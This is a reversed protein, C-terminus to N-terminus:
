CNVSIAWNGVVFKIFFGRSYVQSASVFKVIWFFKQKQLIFVTESSVFLSCKKDVIQKFTVLNFFPM